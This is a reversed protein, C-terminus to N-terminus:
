LCPRRPRSNSKPRCGRCSEALLPYSITLAAAEEARERLSSPRLRAQRIRSARIDTAHFSGLERIAFAGRVLLAHFLFSALFNSPRTQYDGGSLLSGFYPQGPGPHTATM